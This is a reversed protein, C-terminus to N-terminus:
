LKWGWKWFRYSWRSFEYQSWQVWDPFIYKDIIDKKKYTNALFVVVIEFM